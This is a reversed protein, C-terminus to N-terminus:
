VLSALSANVYGNSTLLNLISTVESQDMDPIVFTGTQRVLRTLSAPNIWPSAIEVQTNDQLKLRLYSYSRFDQSLVIGPTVPLSAYISASNAAATSPNILGYGSEIALVTANVVNSVVTSGYTTFSVVDNEQVQSYVIVQAM